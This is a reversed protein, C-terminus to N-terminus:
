KLRIQELQKEKQIVEKLQAELRKKEALIEAQRSAISPLSAAAADDGGAKPFVQKLIMEYNVHSGGGVSYWEQLRRMEKDHIKLDLEKLV